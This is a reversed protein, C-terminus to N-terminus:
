PPDFPGANTPALHIRIANEIQHTRPNEGAYVATSKSYCAIYPGRVALFERDTLSSLLNATGKDLNPESLLLTWYCRLVELDSRRFGALLAAKQCFSKLVHLVRGAAYAPGTILLCPLIVSETQFWTSITWFAVLEAADESLLTQALLVQKIWSFLEAATAVRPPPIPAPVPATLIESPKAMEADSTCGDAAPAPSETETTTDTLTPLYDEGLIAADILHMFSKPEPKPALKPTPPSPSQPIFPEFCGGDDTEDPQTVSGEAAPLPGNKPSNSPAAPDQSAAGAEDKTAEAESTDDQPSTPEATETDAPSPNADTAREPLDPNINAAAGTQPRDSGSAITNASNEEM